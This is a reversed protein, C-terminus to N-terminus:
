AARTAPTGLGCDKMAQRLAEDEISRGATEMASLLTAESHRPPPKTQRAVAEFAGELRDGEEVVPLSQEVDSEKGPADDGFGAVEQWGAVLRVRGRALYRDPLPPLEALLAERDEPGDSMAAAGVRVVLETNAFEADPYFAGLFRRVVLDFVRQEDRGLTGRAAKGTPIIAHHDQVKSDDFVRKTRAPPQHLLPAVFGAFDAME